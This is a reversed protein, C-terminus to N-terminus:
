FDDDFAGEQHQEYDMNHIVLHRSTGLLFEFFGRCCKKKKNRISGSFSVVKRQILHCWLCFALLIILLVLCVAVFVAWSIIANYLNSNNSKHIVSTKSWFDVNVFSWNFVRYVDPGWWYCAFFVMFLRAIILVFALLNNKM